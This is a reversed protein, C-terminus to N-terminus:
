TGIAKSLCRRCAGHAKQTCEGTGLQYYRYWELICELAAQGDKDRLLTRLRSAKDMVFIPLQKGKLVSVRHCLIRSEGPKVV